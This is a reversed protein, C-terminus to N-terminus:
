WYGRIAGHPITAYHEAMQQQPVWRVSGDLYGVNGGRSNIAEPEPLQGLMSRVPGTPGHPASTVNPQVTGKEIVDAIMPWSPDDTDKKPSDWPAPGTHNNTRPRTDLHTSHGFLFYYGLRHGVGPEFRYWDRKNPCTISNTSMGGAEQLYRYTDSHIFSFHEFLNDRVGDPFKGQNDVAYMLMTLVIQRQNNKCVTRRGAEKASSLAPLLMAALIAIIAIVVLLEILTFARPGRRHAPQNCPNHHNSRMLWMPVLRIM